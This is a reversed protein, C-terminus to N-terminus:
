VSRSVCKRIGIPSYGYKHMYKKNRTENIECKSKCYLGMSNLQSHSGSLFCPVLLNVCPSQSPHHFSSTNHPLSPIIFNLCTSLSHFLSTPLTSPVFLPFSSYLFAAALPTCHPILSSCCQNTYTLYPLLTDTFHLPSSHLSLSLYISLSLHPM